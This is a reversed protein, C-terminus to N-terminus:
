VVTKDTPISPSHIAFIKSDKIFEGSIVNNVDIFLFNGNNLVVDKGNITYRAQGDLMILIEVKQQHYHPKCISGKKNEKYLVEVKDTKCPHNSDFFSGVFWGRFDNPEDFRGLFYKGNKLKTTDM